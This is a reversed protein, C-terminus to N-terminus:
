HARLLCIHFSDTTPVARSSEGMPFSYTSQTAQQRNSGGTEESYKLYHSLQAEQAPHLVVADCNTQDKMVKKYHKSM